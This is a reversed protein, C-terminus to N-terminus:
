GKAKVVGATVGAPELGPTARDFRTLAKAAWGLPGARLSGMGYRRSEALLADAERYRRDYFAARGAVYCIRALREAAVTPEVVGKDACGEYFRRLMHAKVALNRSMCSKSLRDGHLRRLALPEDILGFPEEISIRLWLDYDECVPLSEDFGGHRELLDRECVVAPVHVFSREFLAQTIRGGVCPKTRGPVPRGAATIPAMPGYYIRYDLNSELAAVFRALKEPLWLDDSDLFAIYRGQAAAIGRNRAAAPGRQTALRMVRPQTGHGAVGSEIEEGSGDDVVIVEYDKYTQRAVSDLAERLFALRNHTPIVVSVMPRAM